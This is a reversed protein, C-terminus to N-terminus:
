TEDNVSPGASLLSSAGVSVGGPKDPGGPLLTNSTAKRATALPMQRGDASQQVSPGASLLPPRSEPTSTGRPDGPRIVVASQQATPGM